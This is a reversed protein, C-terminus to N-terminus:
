ARREKRELLLIDIYFCAIGILLYMVRAVGFIIGMQFEPEGNDGVSLTLPYESFYGAGFLDFGNPIWFLGVTLAILIMLYILSQHLRGLLQGIGTFFIFCSLMMLLAPPIFADFDHFGFFKVYFLMSIVVNIICILTFCVGVVATRILMQGSATVPAMHTLADVMKQKKSFYGALLLLVTIISIPLIRGLYTCFSYVSFPATYAIGMIIDTSLVFWSFLCNVIFMGIFVRGFLMRKLEYLFVKSM